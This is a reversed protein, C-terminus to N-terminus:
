EHYNNIDHPRSLEDSKTTFHGASKTGKITLQDKKETKLPKLTTPLETASM